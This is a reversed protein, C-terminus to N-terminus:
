VVLPGLGLDQWISHASVDTNQGIWYGLMRGIKPDHVAGHAAIGRGGSYTLAFEEYVDQVFPDQDSRHAKVLPTGEFGLLDVKPMGPAMGLDPMTAAITTQVTDEPSYLNLVPQRYRGLVDKNLRYPPENGHVASFHPCALFVIRGLRITASLEISAQKVINCGHSHAIMHIEEDPGLRSVVELYRALQRGGLIRGPGHLDAGSWRFRGERNYFPPDKRGRLWHWNGKPRLEGFQCVHKNGIRWVQPPLGAAELGADIQAAFGGLTTEIWWMGDPDHTGHVIIITM